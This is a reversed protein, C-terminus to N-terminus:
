VLKKFNIITDKVWDVHQYKEVEIKLQYKELEKTLPIVLDVQSGYRVVGITEGQNMYEKVCWNSIVNVDKDAIQVIYYDFHLKSSRITLIKRENEFLYEMNDPNLKLEYLINNEFPTMSTKHTLIPPTCRENIIFGDAPMCNAHVDYITMFIGLVLSNKSYKKDYLLDQTTYNKGKIKIIKETPGINPYAYVVIGSAYSYFCYNDRYYTKFPERFFEKGYLEDLSIKKLKEVEPTELWTQFEM